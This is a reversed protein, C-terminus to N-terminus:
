MRLMGEDEDSFSDKEQTPSVENDEGYEGSHLGNRLGEAVIRPIDATTLATSTKDGPNSRTAPTHQKKCGSTGGPVSPKGLRYFFSDNNRLFGKDFPVRLLCKKQPLV